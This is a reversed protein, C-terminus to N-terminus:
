DRSARQWQLLGLIALILFVGYLAATPLLGKVIFLGIALVDVAIWLYWSQLHRRMLLIQATVSLAAIAGDWFPHTADTYQQMVVALILWLASTALLGQSFHRHNLYAVQVKGDPAKYKLWYFVGYCQTIFFFVQLLSDSYLQYDFFIKAYLVVMIFGFLYNWLSRKIILYVNLFGCTVAIYEIASSGIMQQIFDM